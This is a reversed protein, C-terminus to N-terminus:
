VKVFSYYNKLGTIHSRQIYNRRTYVNSLVTINQIYLFCKGQMRIEDNTYKQASVHKYYLGDRRWEQYRGLLTKKAVTSLLFGPTKERNLTTPSSVASYLGEGVLKQTM